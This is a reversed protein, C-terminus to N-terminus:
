IECQSGKSFISSIKFLGSYEYVKFLVAHICLFLHCALYIKAGPSPHDQHYVQENGLISLTDM